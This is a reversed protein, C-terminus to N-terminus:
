IRLACWTFQTTCLYASFTM